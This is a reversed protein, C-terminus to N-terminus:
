TASESAHQQVDICRVGGPRRREVLPRPHADDPSPFQPLSAHIQPAADLAPHSAAVVRATVGNALTKTESTVTVVVKQRNGEEDTERYTWRTGPAMPWYPNDIDTTFDAPNLDVPEDGQPLATSPEAAAPEATVIRSASPESAQM